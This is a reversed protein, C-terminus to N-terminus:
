SQETENSPLVLLCTSPDRRADLGLHRLHTNGPITEIVTAKPVGGTRPSPVADLLSVPRMANMCAGSNGMSYKDADQLLQTDM